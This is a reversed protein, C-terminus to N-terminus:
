SLYGSMNACRLKDSIGIDTSSNKKGFAMVRDTSSLNAIVIFLIPRLAIQFLKFFFDM